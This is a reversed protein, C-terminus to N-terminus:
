TCISGEGKLRRAAAGFPATEEFHNWAVFALYLDDGWVDPLVSKPPLFERDHEPNARQLCCGDGYSADEAMHKLYSEFVGFSQDFSEAFVDTMHKMYAM